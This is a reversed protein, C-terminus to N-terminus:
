SKKVFVLGVTVFEWGFSLFIKDLNQIKKKLNIGTHKSNANSYSFFIEFFLLFDENKKNM